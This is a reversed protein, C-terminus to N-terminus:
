PTRRPTRALLAAVAEAPYAFALGEAGRAVIKATVVGLLEGDVSLLPGGSNGPSVGADIQIVGPRHGDRRPRRGSVIGQSLSWQLGFPHGIVFVATGTRLRRTDALRLPAVGRPVAAIRVIALDAGEDRLVVHGRARYGNWFEVRVEEADAVVHHNTVILGRPDVVSGSGRSEGSRIVVVARRARAYMGCIPCTEAPADHAVAHVFGSETLNHPVSSAGCGAGVLAVAAGVLAARSGAFMTLPAHIFLM